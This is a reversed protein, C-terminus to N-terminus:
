MQSSSPIRECIYAERVHKAEAGSVARSLTSGDDARGIDKSNEESQPM